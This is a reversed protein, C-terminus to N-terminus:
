NASGAPPEATQEAALAKQKVLRSAAGVFAVLNIARTLLEPASASTILGNQIALNFLDPLSGLAAFFWISYMSYFKKWGDILELEFKM